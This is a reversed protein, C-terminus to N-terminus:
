RREDERWGASPIPKILRIVFGLRELEREARVALAFDNERRATELRSFWFLAPEVDELSLRTKSM